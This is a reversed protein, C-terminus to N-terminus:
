SNGEKRLMYKNEEQIKEMEKIHKDFDMNYQKIDKNQPMTPNAQKTLMEKILVELDDPDIVDWLTKSWNGFQLDILSVLDWLKKAQVLKASQVVGLFRQGRPQRLVEQGGRMWGRHESAHRHVHVEHRKTTEREEVRREEM